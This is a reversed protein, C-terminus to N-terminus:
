DCGVGDLLADWFKRWHSRTDPPPEPPLGHTVRMKRINEAYNAMAERTKLIMYPTSETEMM